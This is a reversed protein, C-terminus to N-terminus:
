IRGNENRYDLSSQMQAMCKLFQRGIIKDNGWINGYVLGSEEQVCVAVNGNAFADLPNV